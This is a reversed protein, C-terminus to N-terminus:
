EISIAATAASSAAAPAPAPAPASVAVASAPEQVAQIDWVSELRLPRKDPQKWECQQLKLILPVSKSLILQLEKWSCVVVHSLVVIAGHSGWGDCYARKGGAPMTCPGDVSKPHLPYM